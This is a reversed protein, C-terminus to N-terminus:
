LEYSTVYFDETVLFETEKESSSSTFFYLKGHAVFVISLFLGGIPGIWDTPTHPLQSGHTNPM